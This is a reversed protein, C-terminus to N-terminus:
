GDDKLWAPCHDWAEEVLMPTIPALMRTFGMFIPELIGGGDGCYLRDKQTELYFASLDSNVWRNLHSFAKYFEFNDYAKGVEEMTDKLQIIAIHDIVTLPATRASEHMSGLLMKMITRYKILATHISKLVPEGIVVDRTYDSSSAWLRLADPGLADYRVPPAKGGKKKAKVPPLLTGDMVQEPVLINGLSKSM